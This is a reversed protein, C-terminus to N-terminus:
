SLGLGYVYKRRADDLLMPLGAVVDYTYNIQPNTGVTKKTRKGDGDYVYTTSLGGAPSATTLRNAQDYAFADLGRQTENGPENVHM